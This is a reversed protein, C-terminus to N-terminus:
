RGSFNLADARVSDLSILVITRGPPAESCSTLTASLLAGILLPLRKM